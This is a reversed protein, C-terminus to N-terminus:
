GAQLAPWCIRRARVAREARGASPAPYRTSRARLATGEADFVHVVGPTIALEIPEGSPTLSAGEIRCLTLGETGPLRVTVIRVCASRAALRVRRHASLAPNRRGRDM